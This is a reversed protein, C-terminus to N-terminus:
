YRYVDNFVFLKRNGSSRDFGIEEIVKLINDVPPAAITNGLIAATLMGPGVFKTCALEKEVKSGSIIKM